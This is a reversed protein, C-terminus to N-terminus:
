CKWGKDCGNCETAYNECTNGHKFWGFSYEICVNDTITNNNDIIFCCCDTDKTRCCEAYVCSVILLIISIKYIINKYM